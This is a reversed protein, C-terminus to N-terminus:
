RLFGVYGVHHYKLGISATKSREPQQTPIVVAELTRGNPKRKSFGSRPLQSESEDTPSVSAGFLLGLPGSLPVAPPIGHLANMLM